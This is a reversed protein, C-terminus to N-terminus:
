APKRDEEVKLAREHGHLNGPCSVAWSQAAVSWRRGGCGANQKTSFGVPKMRSVWHLRGLTNTTTGGAKEKKSEYFSTEKRKM